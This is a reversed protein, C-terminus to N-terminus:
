LLNKKIKYMFDSSLPMDHFFSEQYTYNFYIENRYKEAHIDLFMAINEPTIDGVTIFRNNITTQDKNEYNNTYTLIGGLVMEIPPYSPHPSLMLSIGLFSKSLYEAYEDMSVKGYVEIGLEKQVPHSYSEGLSIIRWDHFKTNKRWIYIAELLIENCNRPVSPRGYLLVIKEKKKGNRLKLKELLLKNYPPNFVLFDKPAIQKRKFYNFLLETNFINLWDNNYTSAAMESKTSCPYFHPEYDQILYLHKKSVGYKEKQFKEIQKLHYATWWATALFIDNERVVLDGSSRPIISLLQMPDNDDFANLDYNSYFKYFKASFSDCISDTSIIRADCKMEELLYGYLTLATAIGGFVHESQLTPVLLNLRLNKNHSDSFSVPSLEPYLHGLRDAYNSKSKKNIIVRPRPLQYYKKSFNFHTTTLLRIPVLKKKNALTYVGFLREIAHALTGDLQGNEPEFLLPSIPLLFIPLLDEVRFWFMSGAPFDLNDRKDLPKNLMQMLSKVRHYNGGWNMLDKIMDPPEPFIISYDKNKKFLDIIFGPNSLLSEMCYDMWNNGESNYQVSKKTHIHLAFSHKKIEEKFGCIFPLIDRGKNKFIKYNLRISQYKKILLSYDTGEIFAAYITFGQNLSINILQDALDIHYCHIFIGIKEPNLLPYGIMQLYVPNTSPQYRHFFHEIHSKFVRRKEEHGSQHYHQLPDLKYEILKEKFSCETSLYINTDFLPSPNRGEKWGHLIYHEFPNMGSKKVDLYENLYWKEDFVRLDSTCIQDAHEKIIIENYKRKRNLKDNNKLSNVLGSLFKNFKKKVLM